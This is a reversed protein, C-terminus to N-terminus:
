HYRYGRAQSPRLSLGVQQSRRTPRQALHPAHQQRYPAHADLGMSSGGPRSRAIAAVLAVSGSAGLNESSASRSAPSTRASWEALVDKLGAATKLEPHFRVVHHLADALEEARGCEAAADLACRAYVVVDSRGPEERILQLYCDVYKDWSQQGAYVVLLSRVLSLELSRVQTELVNLSRLASAKAGSQGEALAPAGNGPLTGPKVAPEAILVAHEELLLSQEGERELYVLLLREAEQTLIACAVAPESFSDFSVIGDRLEDPQSPQGTMTRAVSLGWALLASLALGLGLWLVHRSADKRWWHNAKPTDIGVRGPLLGYIAASTKM